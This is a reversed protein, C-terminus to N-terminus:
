LIIIKASPTPPACFNALLMSSIVPISVLAVTSPYICLPPLGLAKSLIKAELM